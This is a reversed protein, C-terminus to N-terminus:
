IHTNDVSRKPYSIKGKSFAILDQLTKIERPLSQVCIKYLEFAALADAYARHAQKINIGLMDNLYSLAYKKSVITRRSIDLTCLCANFLPPMDYEYLSEAIFNYDFSVNHAVFISDGLFESFQKLVQEIRPADELMYSDIGTLEIIDEPVFPSYVLTDFTNLIEGNQAIIAGVEIIQGKKANSSTTEIDVFCLKAEELSIDKLTTDIIDNGNELVHVRFPAHLGILLEILTECEITSYEPLMNSLKSYFNELTLPMQEFLDFYQKFYNLTM